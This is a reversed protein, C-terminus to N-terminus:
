PAPRRATARRFRRLCNVAMPDGPPPYCLFLARGREAAAQPSSSSDTFMSMGNVQLVCGQSGPVPPLSGPAVSALHMHSVSFVYPFACFLEFM